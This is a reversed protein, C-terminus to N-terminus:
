FTSHSRSGPDSGPPPSPRETGVEAAVAERRLRGILRIGRSTRARWRAAHGSWGPFREGWSHAREDAARLRMELGDLLEEVREAQGAARFLNKLMMSRELVGSPLGLGRALEGITRRGIFVGVAVPTVLRTVIDQLSLEAEPDEAEVVEVDAEEAVGAADLRGAEELLFVGTVDALTRYFPEHAVEAVTGCLIPGWAGLHTHFFRAELDARGGEVLAAMLLMEVGVHDPAGCRLGRSPSFGCEDYFARVRATEATNLMVEEGVFVSEYPYVCMGFVAQHEIRLERLRAEDPLEAALRALGTGSAEASAERLRAAGAADLEELFLGALIRYTAAREAGRM